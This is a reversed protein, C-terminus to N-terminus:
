LFEIRQKTKYLACAHEYDSISILFLPNRYFTEQSVKMVSKRLFKLLHFYM